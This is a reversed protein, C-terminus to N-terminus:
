TRGARRERVLLWLLYGGGLAATLVGVPLPTGPLVRGDALWDAGATLAAGMAAATGIGPEPSRTLRRALQPAALAVFPIPGAASTAVAALLVGAASLWLRTRATNVGLAVAADEGMEALAMRRSTLVVAPLVAVLVAAVPLANSWGRGDLSGTLWLLAQQAEAFSARTLLYSNLAGLVATVGIGTLVLRGGAGGVGRRALGHVLLAAVVGGLVAGLPVGVAGGGLVVIVLLAGGASGATFGIIDPSALPNRALSQFIGGSAAFAAGVLLGTAIRPLRLETVVFSAGPPGGGALTALVQGPTLRYEGTGLAVVGVAAAALLLATCVVVTRPRVLLSFRGARLPKGTGSTISM